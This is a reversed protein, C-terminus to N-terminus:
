NIEPNKNASSGEVRKRRKLIREALKGVDVKLMIITIVVTLVISLAITLQPGLFESFTNGTWAGLFAGVV